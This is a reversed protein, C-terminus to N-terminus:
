ILAGSAQAQQYLREAVDLLDARRPWKHKPDQQLRALLIQGNEYQMGGNSAWSILEGTKIADEAREVSIYPARRVHGDCSMYTRVGLASLWRVVGSMYTDMIDLEIHSFGPRGAEAGGHLREWCKLWDGEVLLEHPVEFTTGPLQADHGLCRMIRKIFKLNSPTEPRLDLVEGRDDFRVGSRVFARRWEILTRPM